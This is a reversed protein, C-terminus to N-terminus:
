ENYMDSCFNKFFSDIDSMYDVNQKLWENGKNWWKFDILYNRQEETFRYKIVRAPVGGVISYPEVDKTVVSGAAICAGDGITVGGMILVRDGIWVDNGVVIFYDDNVKKVENFKNEEVFSFGAQKM